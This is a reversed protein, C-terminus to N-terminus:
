VNNVSKDTIHLEVIVMGKTLLALNAYFLRHRFMLVTIPRQLCSKVNRLCRVRTFLDRLELARPRAHKNVFSPNQITRFKM